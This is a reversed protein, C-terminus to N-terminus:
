TLTVTLASIPFLAIDGDLVARSVALAGWFILNGASVHDFIAMHTVTGWGATATTFTIAGSNSGSGNSPAGFTIAERAYSGGTVETGSADDDVSDTFLAAYVTVPSTLASNRLLHDFVGDESYDSFASM